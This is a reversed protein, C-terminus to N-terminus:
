EMGFNKVGGTVHSIRLHKKMNTGGSIAPILSREVGIWGKKTDDGQEVEKTQGGHM